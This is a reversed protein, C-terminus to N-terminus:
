SEGWANKIHKPSWTAGFFIGDFRVPTEDPNLKQSILYHKSGQIIRNRQKRLLSELAMDETPRKKVEVFIFVGRKYAVLDIEGVPTKVRQGLVTYGKLRLYWAAVSEAWYGQYWARSQFSSM